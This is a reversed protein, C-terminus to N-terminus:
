LLRPIQMREGSLFTAAITDLTVRPNLIGEYLADSVSQELDLLRRQTEAEIGSSSIIRSRLQSFRSSDVSKARNVAVNSKEELSISNRLVINSTSRAKEVWESWYDMVPLGIKAVDQWRENNLNIDHYNYGVEEKNYPQSLLNLTEEDEVLHFAGDLWISQFFPPFAMDGRRRLASQADKNDEIDSNTYCDVAGQIDADVIFDFRIFIDAKENTEYGRAHRWMAVSRGRDDLETVARLGELFSEGLRLLRVNNDRSRRMLATERRCTYPFTLPNKSTSGHAEMDLTSLFHDIFKSLPLLTQKGYDGYNMCLRFIKDPIIGVDPGNVYGMLLTNVLWKDVSEKFGRWDSDVDFLEDLSEEPPVTLADLADQEDIRRMETKVLGNTGGMSETLKAIAELGDTLLIRSLSYMESEILYQMSAISNNFIGLGNDLCLAWAVELPNDICRLVSSQIASGSGYRDVRGMRQEIRNPSFSLDFHVIVKDGGQLNLGEEANADCVLIKHNPDNLFAMWPPSDLDDEDFEVHRNVIGDQNQKLYATVRDAIGVDTCFIVFKTKNGGVQQLYSVLAHYRDTEKMLEHAINSIDVLLALEDSVSGVADGKNQNLHNIRENILKVICDPGTLSAGLLLSFWDGLSLAQSSNERGYIEAAVYSRWNEIVIILSMSSKSSYDIYNVGIRTPTLGPVGSRRNRLIRRDLRYTESLHTRLTYLAQLYSEDTEEPLIDLIKRLTSIHNNLLEDQNFQEAIDDLFLDLQLLNEPVLGAVTEALMQRHEIKKKFADEQNLQYVNPDLLHLMELFSHENHLVPTASLLLLRPVNTISDRLADYLLRNRSMHHAEDIVLMGANKVLAVLHHISDNMSVVHVSDDLQLELLFRQQLEDRWQPVLVPPVIIVINHNTPEDIVYQRILVGAEITKGLGVEDALLYRQVPDQLVRRIVEVQHPEIDIISSILASMGQCASRQATLAEVFNKRAEAFLPTENIKHSLYATPDKIARDWRVYIDETSLVRNVKNPFRVEVRDNDADIIRGVRWSADAEDQWYVRTQRPLIVSKLNSVPLKIQVLDTIPSDFFVIQAFGNEHHEVKGVGWSSCEHNVAHVFTNELMGLPEM